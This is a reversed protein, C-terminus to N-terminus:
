PSPGEGLVSLLHRVEEDVQEPGAVTEAIEARLHEGFRKRLRHVATKVAPETMGLDGAAERYSSAPEDGTLYAKLRGFRETGGGRASEERLRELARELVTM